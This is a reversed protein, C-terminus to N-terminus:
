FAKHIFPLYLKIHVALSNNNKEKSIYIKNVLMQISADEIDKKEIIDELLEVSKKIGKQADKNIEKVEQLTEIQKELSLIKETTEETLEKFIEEGILNKALQKAYAKIEDKLDIIEYQVKEITNTYSRKKQNWRELFKDLNILNQEAVTILSTLHKYLMDDLEVEKVRHPSCVNRGLRHYANCVYEIYQEGHYQRKKAVFSAGCDGCILLGAYRHIKSNSSARVNNKSRNKRIAQTKLWVEKTIIPPYYGEHVIHDKEPIMKKYKYIISRTSIGCRLVGIYTDNDLIRSITRDSWVDKGIWKKGPQYTKGYVQKQFWSPTHVQNETLISAIKKTGHGTIYLDYIRQVIEACEYVIEIKRTVPNKQYGFPPIIVLGEKQKQKFAARIKKSIDKAYQENLIQKFGILIDDNDSFNDLNETISYIKVNMRRAYELFLASHAKHRGIRSLDKVLVLDAEKKEILEKLNNIGERDFTMGSINDDEFIKILNYRNDKAYDIIIQKQNQLSNQEKDEDRSLRVYGYVKLINTNEMDKIM